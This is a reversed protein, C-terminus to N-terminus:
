AQSTGKQIQHLRGEEGEREVQLTTHEVDFHRRLMEATRTRVLWPEADARVTIHAAVAAFGSTVTWVHLDHVEAVGSVHAIAAGMAEVDVGPPAAEMLVDVAERVIRIGGLLILAAIGLSAIPDALEWGTLVIIAAAVIVGVSSLADALVHGLAARVNLTGGSRMLVGAAAVNAALGVAAVGLTIGGDVSPPDSLRGAAVWVTVLAIGVLAAGNVLAALIEARQWGFTHRGSPPRTAIRLSAFALALSSADTLLHGADAMLALSGGILAGAVQVAFIICTLALATALGRAGAQRMAAHDHGHGHHRHGYAPGM